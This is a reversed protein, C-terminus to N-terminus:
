ECTSIEKEREKKIHSSLNFNLDLRIPKTMLSHRVRTIGPVTAQWAVRDM